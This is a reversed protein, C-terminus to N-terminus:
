EVNVFEFYEENVRVSISPTMWHMKWMPFDLRSPLVALFNSIHSSSSICDCLQPGFCGKQSCRNSSSHLKVATLFRLAPHLYVHWTNRSVLSNEQVHSSSFQGLPCRQLEMNKPSQQNRCVSNNTRNVGGWRWIESCHVLSKPFITEDSCVCGGWGINQKRM